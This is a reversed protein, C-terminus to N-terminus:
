LTIRASALAILWVPLWRTRAAAVLVPWGDATSTTSNAGSTGSVTTVAESASTSTSTSASTSIDTSMSSTSTTASTPGMTSPTVITFASPLTIQDRLGASAWNTADRTWLRLDEVSGSTNGLYVANDTEDLALADLGPPLASTAASTADSQWGTGEFNIACLFTPRDDKTGTYVVLQDGSSSLAFSGSATTFNARRLLGGVPLPGSATFQLVGESDRFSGDAKVGNDTVYITQGGSVAALLLIAFDDPDDAQFGVVVCDGASLATPAACDSCTGNLHM